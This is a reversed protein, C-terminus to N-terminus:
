RTRVVARVTERGAYRLRAFYSGSAVSHGDQDRGDWSVAHEGSGRVGDDLTRVLRGTVDYLGLTVSAEAPLRYRFWTANSFPNPAAASLSLDAAAIPPEVGVVTPFKLIRFDDVGAEVLSGSGADEAIFRVKMNNTLTITGPISFLQRTWSNASVNTNELSTWNTGGDNSIDVRWFDEGPAGGLNNSYWRYYELVLNPDTTGDFAATTLTTRGNDVDNAGVQGGVVGQGTVFCIVGPTPTHDDEPQVPQGGTSTGVPNVRTWLGTTANDGPASTAWAPDTELDRFLLSTPPGALFVKTGRTPAGPPSAISGGYTDGATIYYHVIAGSQGPIQGQFQNPGTPTMPTSVFLGQNVQFHLTPSSADLAGIPGTYQITAAVNYPGAGPQDALPTHAVSLFFGTGIGHLNFANVIDNGHPTGNSLNADDDDATLTEFFVESMAVGDNPDDPTGWKMFHVLHETTALGAAERLDWFAGGIILGTLHPDGSQDEPWHKTNNLTRLVTGPGFFGKGGDPNDQIMAANVDALGEHLAGNSLGFPSGHQIYLNDNVGHGYEHFIVDPMTGTNPCGGGAAFFNVGTGDWFANCVDNINVACPMSYDNGTFSPDITKAYDHAINVNWYADREADHSNLTTWAVNVTAPDTAPTSFSADAPGDSRNVDCFDGLLNASVTVNGAAPASYAGAADSTANNPGVHVTLHPFPRSALPDTPLFPNVLGSVTGGITHRVRDIRWRVEGTEADVLTLWNAVPQATHVRVDLVPRYIVGDETGIPLLYAREGGETRDIAPNYSLGAHAAERAVSPALRPAFAPAPRHTDAGFMVLRGSASVRFEWDAFLVPLGGVLRRYSVYWLSGAKAVSATELTVEPGFVGPESAIFARVAQDVGAADDRFGPLGFSPGYARHPSGTVANWVASWSGHAARFAQWAPTTELTRAETETALRTAGSV